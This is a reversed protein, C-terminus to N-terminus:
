SRWTSPNSWTTTPAVPRAGAVRDEVADRATLILVPAGVPAPADAAAGGPRGTRPLGLDLVVLDFRSGVALRRRAKGDQATDVAYGAHRPSRSLGDSLVLDDEVVLIRM